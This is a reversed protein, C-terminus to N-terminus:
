ALTSLSTPRTSCDCGLNCVHASCTLPLSVPLRVSVPLKPIPGKIAVKDGPKLNHIHNTMAGNPQHM